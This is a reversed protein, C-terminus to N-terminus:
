IELTYLLRKWGMAWPSQAAWGLGSQVMGRGTGDHLCSQGVSCCLGARPVCGDRVVVLRWHMIPVTQDSFLICSPCLATSVWTTPSFNICKSVESLCLGALLLFFFSFLFFFCSHKENQYLFKLLPKLNLFFFWNQPCIQSEMKLLCLYQLDTFKWISHLTAILYEVWSDSQTERGSLLVGRQVTQGMATMVKQCYLCKHFVTKLSSACPSYLTM